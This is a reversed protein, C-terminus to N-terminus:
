IKEPISFAPFAKMFKRMDEKTAFLKENYLRKFYARLDQFLRPPLSLGYRMTKTKNAGHANVREKRLEKNQRILAYTHDKNNGIQPNDCCQFVSKLCHECRLIIQEENKDESVINQKKLVPRPSECCPLYDHGCNNCYMTPDKLWTCIFAHAAVMKDNTQVIAM